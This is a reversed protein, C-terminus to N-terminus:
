RRHGAVGAPRPRAVRGSGASPAMGALGRHLLDLAATATADADGGADVRALAAQVVGGVLATVLDPEAVGLDAVAAALPAAQAQHLEALRERCPEPLDGGALAMALRHAGAAGLRLTTTVYADIRGIPDDIGALADALERDAPPFAEEVVTAVIEAVSGFYQYVSSRALGARRGVAAPTLAPLGDDRLIEVAADLLAQRQRAHHEAVTAASIKPM